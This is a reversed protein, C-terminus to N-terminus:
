FGLRGAVQEARTLNRDLAAMTKALDASEDDIWTRLVNVYVGTLGMIKLAGSFGGTHVGAAELMWSMSRCVHPCAFLGQKPDTRFSKLVAAIGARYEGMAEFREMMVDFLRDRASLAADPAAANDLVRRDIMRWFAALIDDRDDFYEHLDKLSIEAAAAIEQLSLSAWGRSAALALASCVVNEKINERTKATM